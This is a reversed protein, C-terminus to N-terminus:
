SGRKPKPNTNTTLEDEVGLDPQNTPLWTMEGGPDAFETLRLTLNPAASRDAGPGWARISLAQGDPRATADAQPGAISSFDFTLDRMVEETPRIAAVELKLRAHRERLTAHEPGEPVLLQAEVSNFEAVLEGRRKGRDGRQGALAPEQDSNLMPDFCFLMPGRLVAVKGAQTARGRVLRVPMPMNLRIEDGTKWTRRIACFQGPIM